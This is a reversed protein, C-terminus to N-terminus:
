FILNYKLTYSEKSENSGESSVSMTTCAGGAEESSTSMTSVTCIIIKM